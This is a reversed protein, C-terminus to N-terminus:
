PLEIKQGIQITDCNVIGNLECIAKVQSDDGYYERSISILTEGKKIIHFKPEKAEEQIPTVAQQNEQAMKEKWDSEPIAETVSETITEEANETFVPLVEERDPLQKEAMTQFAKQFFHHLSEIKGFGNMTSIATVCLVILLAAAASKVIGFIRPEKAQSVTPHIRSAATASITSQTAQPMAEQAAEKKTEQTKQQIKEELQAQRHILFALMSENKEYFIHYGQVRVTKGSVFLCIGEPIEEELTVIGLPIYDEFWSGGTWTIEEYDEGTLYVEDSGHQVVESGGYIFFYQQAEEARMVGYFAIRKKRDPEQRCLQKLYSIVYDEIFVKYNGHVEGIQTTNKPLEM